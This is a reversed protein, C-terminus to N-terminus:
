AAPSEASFRRHLDKAVARTMGGVNALEDETADRISAPSRYGADLLSRVRAPGMGRVTFLEEM